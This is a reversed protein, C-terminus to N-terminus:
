AGVSFFITSDNHINASNHGVRQSGIAWWAGRTMLNELCSYQLSNDNRGELSRGSGSILDAHGPDGANVPPNKVTSGSPFGLTYHQTNTHILNHRAKLEPESWLRSLLEM